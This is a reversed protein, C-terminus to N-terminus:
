SNFRVKLSVPDPLLSTLYFSSREIAKAQRVPRLFLAAIAALASSKFLSQVTEIRLCVLCDEGTCDHDLHIFVFAAAFVSALIFFATLVAFLLRSRSFQIM